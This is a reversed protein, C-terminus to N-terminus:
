GNWLRIIDIFRDGIITEPIRIGQVNKSVQALFMLSDYGGVPVLGERERVSVSKFTSKLSSM